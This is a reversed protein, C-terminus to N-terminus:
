LFSKFYETITQRDKKLARKKCENKWRMVTVWSINDITEPKENEVASVTERSIGIIPALQAQTLGAFKRHRRLEEGNVRYKIAM